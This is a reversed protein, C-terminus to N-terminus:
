ATGASILSEEEENFLRGQWAGAANRPPESENEALRHQFEEITVPRGYLWGQGLIQQGTAVFFAAQSETEIGEVVVRLSLAEAMSLIKPLIAANAADTGVSKTFSRDIKIADVAMDHLYSLSSFGTGFDDIHVSHGRRRLALITEIAVDHHATSSETIEVTLSPADVHADELAQDLM